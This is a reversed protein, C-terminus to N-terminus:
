NNGMGQSISEAIDTIYDGILPLGGLANLLFLMLAVILTAGLVSGLGWALGGLFNALFLQGKSRYVTVVGKNQPQAIQKEIDSMFYDYCLRAQYNGLIFKQQFKAIKQGLIKGRTQALIFSGM